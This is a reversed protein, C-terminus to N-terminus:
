RLGVVIRHMVIAFGMGVLFEVAVTFITILVTTWVDRWWLADTLVVAYNRLGVLERSGPDTLRYRFLSLWVAHLMPYATVLLMVTFAPAALLWGLRREHRERNTISVTGGRARRWQARGSWWRLARAIAAM